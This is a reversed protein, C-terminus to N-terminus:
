GTRQAEAIRWGDATPVLVMAVAAEPRPPETRLVPGDRAATVAYEPWRDVLGLEVRDGASTVTDVRVVTPEFGRLVEGAAALDEVQRRDAELLASDPAYADDLLAPDAAAFAAARSAYLDAVVTRWEEPTTPPPEPRDAGPAPSPTEESTREAAAVATAVEAEDAPDDAPGGWQAGAWGAAVLGLAVAALLV